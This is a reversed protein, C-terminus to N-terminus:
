PWLLSFQTRTHVANKIFLKLPCCSNLYHPPSTLFSLLGVNCIRVITEIATTSKRTFLITHHAYIPEDAPWTSKEDERPWYCDMQGESAQMAPSPLSQHRSSQPADALLRGQGSSRQKNKDQNKISSAQPLIILRHMIHTKTAYFSESLNAKIWKDNM